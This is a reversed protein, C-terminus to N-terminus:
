DSEKRALVIAGVMASLLVISVLEFPFVYASFLGNAIGTLSVNHAHSETLPMKSTVLVVTLVVFTAVALPLAFVAQRNFYFGRGTRQQETLMIAFLVVVSIAGVYVLIQIVALLGADLLVYAAAVGLFCAVMAMASHVINRLTVVAIGCGLVWVAVIVFLIPHFDGQPM